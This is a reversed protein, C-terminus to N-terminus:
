RLREVFLTWYYEAAGEYTLEQDAQAGMHSFGLPKLHMAYGNNDVSVSENYSNGDGLGSQSYFIGKTGWRGGLSVWIGCRSREQGGVYAVAEFRNADVTRFGTQVHENRAELENLSNEFYRTLYEFAETLFADRERDSFEKLVRLNSSRPSRRTPNAQIAASHHRTSPPGAPTDSSPVAGAAQRVAQAVQVFGDDLTPHKTVPKGDKPVAMLKGFPAAQWDCPRLIVPIVCASGQQHRELARRMEKEYCYDSSLFDASVLLLVIDAAELESAIQVGWEEGPLIRRDHWVSVVGQRRLAALHKELEDHLAEDAHSYSVFVRAM